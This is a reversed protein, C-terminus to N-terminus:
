LFSSCGRSEMEEKLRKMFEVPPKTIKRPIIAVLEDGNEIADPHANLFADELQRQIEPKYGLNKKMSVIKESSLEFPEAEYLIVLLEEDVYADTKVTIESEEQHMMRAVKEAAALGASFDIGADMLRCFKVYLKESELTYRICNMPLYTFDPNRLFDGAIKQIQNARIETVNALLNRDPIIPDQLFMSRVNRDALKSIVKELTRYVDVLREIAVGTIGGNEAGYVGRTKFYAKIERVADRQEQTLHTVFYGSHAVTDERKFKNPEILVFDVKFGNVKANWITLEGGQKEAGDPFMNAITTLNVSIYDTIIYFDIDLSDPLWTGKAVSGVLKVQANYLGKMPDTSSLRADIEAVTKMLKPTIAKIDRFIRSDM